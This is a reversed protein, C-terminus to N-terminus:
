DAGVEAGQLLNMMKKKRFIFIDGETSQQRFSVEGLRGLELLALFCAV